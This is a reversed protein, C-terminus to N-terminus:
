IFIRYALMSRHGLLNEKIISPGPDPAQHAYVTLFSFTLALICVGAFRKSLM